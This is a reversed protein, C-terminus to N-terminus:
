QEGNKNKSEKPAPKEDEQEYDAKDDITIPGQALSYVEHDEVQRRKQGNSQCGRAYRSQTGSANCIVVHCHVFM